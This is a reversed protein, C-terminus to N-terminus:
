ARTVPVQRAPASKAKPAVIQLIGQDLSASARDVDIPSDLDFRRLLSNTSFECLRVAGEERDHRHSTEGKVIITRPLMTIHIDKPELGPAAIRLRVEREGEVLESPPSWVIEREARLWDDLDSGPM